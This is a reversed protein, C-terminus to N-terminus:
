RADGGEADVAIIRAMERSAGEISDYRRGDGAAMTGGGPLVEVVTWYPYGGLRMEEEVITDGGAWHAASIPAIVRREIRYRHTMPRGKTTEIRM